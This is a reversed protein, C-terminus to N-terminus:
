STTTIDSHYRMLITKLYEIETVAKPDKPKYEGIYLGSASAHAIAKRDGIFLPRPAEDAELMDGDVMAIEFGTTDRAQEIAERNDPGASDACNLFALAKIDHGARAEALLSAIDELAWLDFSRPKYPILIMDSIMLGARLATSDRGGADIIVHDFGAKQQLVQARLTAGEPYAAAPIAEKGPKSARVTIAGLSTGQRDGDILWVRQGDLSLGLALQVALTSKGVGGKTNGVTVIM